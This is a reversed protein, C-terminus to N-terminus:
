KYKLNQLEKYDIKRSPTLPISDMYRFTFIQHPLGLTKALEKALRGYTEEDGYNCFIRIGEDDGIVATPGSKNLLKEIDDLNIRLGFLKSIRKKRGTIFLFGEEDLYGIDGTYLISNTEEGRSLDKRSTAYGMMVNPGQYVIEGQCFPQTTLEEETKIKIQGDPIAIGASGLKRPLQDPPLCAIRATAETQGYMVVLRAGRPILINHFKTIYENPLKGGAQTMTKLTPLYMKSFGIRDLLQYQFPVCALSTCGHERFLDWFAKELPSLDTLVISGNSFLHSNVVSLGYSYHIPLSTIAREAESLNLAISISKANSQLNQRSLRIFKPSGTSGSTTLLLALHEHIPPLYSNDRLRFLTQGHSINNKGTYGRKRKIWDQNEVTDFVFDPKYLDCLHDKVDPKAKADLLAIAHGAEISALYEVVSGICNSCFCFVLAKKTSSVKEVTLSVAKKLDGFTWWKSGKSDYICMKAMNQNKDFLLFM